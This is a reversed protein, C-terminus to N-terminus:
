WRLGGDGQHLRGGDGTTLVAMARIAVAVMPTVEGERAAQLLSSYSEDGTCAAIDGLWGLQGRYGKEFFLLPWIGPIAM